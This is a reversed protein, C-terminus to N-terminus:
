LVREAGIAGGRGGRYYSYDSTGKQHVGGPETLAVSTTNRPQIRRVEGRLPRIEDRLQELVSRDEAMREVIEQKLRTYSDSDAM